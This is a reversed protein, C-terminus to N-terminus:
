KKDPYLFGKNLVIELMIRTELLKNIANINICIRM